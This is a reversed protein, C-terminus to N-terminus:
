PRCKRIRLRMLLSIFFCARVNEGCTGPEFGICSWRRVHAVEAAVLDRCDEGDGGELVDGQGDDKGLTSWEPLGDERVTLSSNPNPFGKTVRVFGNAKPLAKM